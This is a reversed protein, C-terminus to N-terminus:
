YAYLQLKSKERVLGADVDSEAGWWVLRYGQVVLFREDWRNSNAIGDVM